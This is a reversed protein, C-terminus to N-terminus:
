LLGRSLISVGNISEVEDAPAIGDNNAWASIRTVTLPSGSALFGLDCRSEAPGFMRDFLELGTLDAQRDIGDDDASVPGNIIIGLALAASVRKLNEM